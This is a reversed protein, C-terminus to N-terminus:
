YVLSTPVQTTRCLELYNKGHPPAFDIADWELQKAREYEAMSDKIETHVIVPPLPPALGVPGQFWVDDYLTLLRVSTAQDTPYWPPGWRSANVEFNYWCVNEYLKKLRDVELHAGHTQERALLLYRGREKRQEPDLSCPNLSCPCCDMTSYSLSHQWDLQQLTVRSIVSTSKPVHAHIHLTRLM